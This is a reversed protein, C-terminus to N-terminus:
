FIVERETFPDTNLNYDGWSGSMFSYAHALVDASTWPSSVSSSVDDDVGVPSTGM